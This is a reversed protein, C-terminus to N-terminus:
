DRREPWRAKKALTSPCPYRGDHQLDGGQALVAAIAEQELEHENVASEWSFSGDTDAIQRSVFTRGKHVDIFIEEHYM